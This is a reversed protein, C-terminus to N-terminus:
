EEDEIRRPGLMALDGACRCCIGDLGACAKRVEPLPPLNKAGVVSAALDRATEAGLLAARCRTCDTREEEEDCRSCYARKDYVRGCVICVLEQRGDGLSKWRLARPGHVSCRRQGRERRTQM